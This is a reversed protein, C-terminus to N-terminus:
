LFLNLNADTLDTALVDELILTDGNAFTFVTDAGVQTLNFDGIGSPTPGFNSTFEIRLVDETVDFDTITDTGNNIRLDFDFRDAGAM